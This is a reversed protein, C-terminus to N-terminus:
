TTYFENGIYTINDNIVIQCDTASTANYKIVDFQLDLALYEGEYAIPQKNM